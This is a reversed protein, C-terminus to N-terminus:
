SIFFFIVVGAFVNQALKLITSDMRAAYGSFHKIEFNATVNEKPLGYSVMEDVHKSRKSKPIDRKFVVLYEDDSYHNLSSRM